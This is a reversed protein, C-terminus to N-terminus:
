RGISGKPSDRATLLVPKEELTLRSILDDIRESLPFSPDCFRYGHHHPPMCAHPLIEHYTNVAWIAAGSSAATRKAEDDNNDL